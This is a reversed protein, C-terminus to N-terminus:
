PAGSPDNTILGAANARPQLKCAANTGNKVTPALGFKGAALFATTSAIMIQVFFASGVSDTLTVTATLTGLDVAALQDSAARTSHEKATSAV